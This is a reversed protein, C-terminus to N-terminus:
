NEEGGGGGGGGSNIGGNVIAGDSSIGSHRIHYVIKLTKPDISEDGEISHIDCLDISWIRKLSDPDIKYIRHSTLLGIFTTESSKNKLFTSYTIYREELPIIKEFKAPCPYLSSDSYKEEIDNHHQHTQSAVLSHSSFTPSLSTSSSTSNNNMNNNNVSLTNNSNNTVTTSTSSSSVSNTIIGGGGTTHHHGSSSNNNNTSYYGCSLIYYSQTHKTIEFFFGFINSFFVNKKLKSNKLKKKCVV